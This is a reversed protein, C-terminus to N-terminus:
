QQFAEAITEATLPKSTRMQAQKRLEAIGAIDVGLITVCEDKLVRILEKTSVRRASGGDDFVIVTKTESM